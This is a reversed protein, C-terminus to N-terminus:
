SVSLLKGRKFSAKDSEDFGFEISIVDNCKNVKQSLDEREDNQTYVKLDDIYFLHNINNIGIEHSCGTKNLQITLSILVICFILASVLDEPFNGCKIKISNSKLTGDNYSLIPKSEM